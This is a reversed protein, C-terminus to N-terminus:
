RALYNRLSGYRGILTSIFAVVGILLVVAPGSPVRYYYSILLGAFSSVIAIGIGVAIATDMNRTWFRTAISPLIMLGLAMLTGLAQFSAVLNIVLLIFFVQGIFNRRGSSKLFDPDFCEIVLGRYLACITIVTAWSVGTVLYLADNDIALINGFLIHLLDISNGKTSILIIGGALSMLYILTFSADEKLQTTRTLLTAVIAVIVGVVFGGITMPWVSLGFVLFALAVGPLIAHSMADGVLTMRRLTMFIGLPVAGASLVICAALARRMFLYHTFPDTLVDTIMAICVNKMTKTIIVATNM